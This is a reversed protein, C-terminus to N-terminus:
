SRHTSVTRGAVARGIYHHKQSIARMKARTEARYAQRCPNFIDTSHRLRWATSRTLKRMKEALVEETLLVRCHSFLNSRDIKRSYKKWWNKQKTEMRVKRSFSKKMKKESTLISECDWNFCSSDRNSDSRRSSSIICFNSPSHVRM